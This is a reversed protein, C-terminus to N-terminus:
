RPKRFSFPDAIIVVVIFGVVGVILLGHASRLKTFQDDTLYVVKGHHNYAHIHGTRADPSTPSINAYHISFAFTAALGVAGLACLTYSIIKWFRM